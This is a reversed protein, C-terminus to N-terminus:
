LENVYGEQRYERCARRKDKRAGRQKKEDRKFAAIANLLAPGAAYEIVNRGEVSSRTIIKAAELRAVCRCVTERSLGTVKAVASQSPCCRATDSNSFCAFVMAVHRATPDIGSLARAQSSTLGYLWDVNM